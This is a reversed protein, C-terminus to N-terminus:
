TNLEKCTHSRQSYKNKCMKNSKVSRLGSENREVLALVHMYNFVKLNLSYMIVNFIFQKMSFM